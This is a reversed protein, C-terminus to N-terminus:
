RHISPDEKSEIKIFNGESNTSNSLILRCGPHMWYAVNGWNQIDDRIIRECPGVFDINDNNDLLLFYTFRTQNSLIVPGSMCGGLSDWCKDDDLWVLFDQWERHNLQRVQNNGYYVTLMPENVQPLWPRTAAFDNYAFPRTYAFGMMLLMYGIVAIENFLWLLPFFNKKITRIIYLDIPTLMTAELLFIQALFALSSNIELM